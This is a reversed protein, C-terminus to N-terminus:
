VRGSSLFPVFGLPFPFPLLSPFLLPLLPFDFDLAFDLDFRPRESSRAGFPAPLPALDLDLVRDLDAEEFSRDLAHM